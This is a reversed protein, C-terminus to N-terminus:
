EEVIVAFREGAIQVSAPLKRSGAGAFPQYLKVAGMSNGDFSELSAQRPERDYNVLVCARKGTNPNRFVGYGTHGASNVKAQLTDLFEGFYITDQLSQRLHIVERIYNALPRFPPYDMPETYNGPGVFIQYGYRVANNVATYDYPQTVSMTPLYVMPFTYKLVPVHEGATPHWAWGVGTFPLLQDWPCEASLAFSPNISGCSAQIEQVAALQGESVARDPTMRLLPNFNMSGPCLKDLHIGDAGIEALKKMQRVVIQRFEPIGSSMKQLPRRTFGIRAGLTGMGYGSNQPEGWKSEFKYKYLENKYWDTGTDAPQVNGFFFVKMGLRHCEEIGKRLDDWTGLRPDPTYQPYGGDHGGVNWGSILLSRIGYEKATSAWRPIDSFRFKINGEPLLFMSDLFGMQRYMWNKSPDALHFHSTFWERYIRAASHWDGDHFQISVPPSEFHEGPKVYPFLTWHTLVGLPQKPDVEDASPWNEGERNAVGPQLEFRLVKYRSVTDHVGIYVGRNLKRNSLDFWPMTMRLPYSWYAEAGAIGYAGGGLSPFRQFLRTGTSWGANNITEETDHRDGIGMIGGLVPYWIEAVDSRTRNTLSLRVEIAQRVFAVTMAVDIDYEGGGNKLPGKWLLKLSSPSRECSTLKQQNGRIYNAELNRLPLLLRFNEALRPENILETKSSKDLLRAILGHDATVEVVYNENELRIREGTTQAYGLLAFCFLFGFKRVVM